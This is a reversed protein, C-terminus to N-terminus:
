TLLHLPFTQFPLGAVKTRTKSKQTIGPWSVAGGQSETEVDPFFSFIFGMLESTETEWDWSHAKSHPVQSLWTGQSPWILPPHARLGLCLPLLFAKSGECGKGPSHGQALSNM